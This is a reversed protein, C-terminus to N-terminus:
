RSPLPSEIRTACLREDWNRAGSMTRTAPGCRMPGHGIRSPRALPPQRFGCSEAFPRSPADSVQLLTPRRTSTEAGHCPPSGGCTVSLMEPLRAAATPERAPRDQAAPAGLAALGGQSLFGVSSRSNATLKVDCKGILGAAVTLTRDRITVTAEPIRPGQLPFPIDGETRRIKRAPLGSALGPHLRRGVGGPHRERDAERAQPSPSRDCPNRCGIRAGCLDDGGQGAPPRRDDAPFGEM